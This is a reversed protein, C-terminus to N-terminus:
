TTTQIPPTVHPPPAQVLTAAQSPPEQVPTAAQSPPEQVKQVASPVKKIATVAREAASPKKQQRMRNNAIALSGPPMVRLRNNNTAKKGRTDRGRGQLQEIETIPVIPSM